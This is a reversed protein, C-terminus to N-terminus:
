LADNKGEVELFLARVSLIAGAFGIISIIGLAINYNPYTKWADVRLMMGATTLAPPASYTEGDPTKYHIVAPSMGTAMAYLAISMFMVMVIGWLIARRGM